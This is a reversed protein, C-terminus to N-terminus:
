EQGITSLVTVFALRYALDAKVADVEALMRNKTAAMLAAPNAAAKEAERRLVVM